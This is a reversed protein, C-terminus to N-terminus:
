TTFEHGCEPCTIPTKIDLRGQDELTGPTFDPLEMKLEDLLLADYTDKMGAEIEELLGNIEDTFDGAIHPNNLAVNLAKEDLESLDVIVVDTEIDGREQLVKLRQHGGVINGTRKNEIILEVIGFREISAKLGAYAADSIRRPNYGAPKLEAIKRREINM